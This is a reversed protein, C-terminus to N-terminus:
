GTDSRGRGAPSARGDLAKRLRELTASLLRSVHMQSIGLETAIQTQTRNGFFRLLLIRREREPLAALLPGVSERDEVLAVDGDDVALAAAFRPNEGDAPAGPFPEDLSTCQGRHVAELAEVVEAPALGTHAAIESPRPAPGGRARLDDVARLVAAQLGRIRRPIRITASRDRYHRQVEGTITPVAFALFDVGRDVEFRDVANILGVAAVQELDDPSEGRRAHKRAIHRAVPLYGAILEARLEQRRPHDPPLADREVFLPALHAYESPPRPPQAPDAEEVRDGGGVSEGAHALAPGTLLDLRVGRDLALRRHQALLRVGHHDVSTVARLDVLVEAGADCAAALAAAFRERTALGVDGRVRLAVAGDRLDLDYELPGSRDGPPNPARASPAHEPVPM